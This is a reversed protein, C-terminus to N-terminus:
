RLTYDVEARVTRRCTGSGSRVASAVRRGDVRIEARVPAHECAAAVRIDVTEGSPMERTESWNELVDISRGDHFVQCRGGCTVRLEVQHLGGRPAPSTRDGAGSTGACGSAAVALGAFALASAARLAAERM